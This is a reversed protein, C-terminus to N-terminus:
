YRRGLGVLASLIWAIALYVAIAVLSYIEFHAGTGRVYVDNYHFIGFFPSAFPHSVKYIFNVFGNGPNAALAALVFRFALLLSIIGAVLWVVRSIVTSVYSGTAPEVVESDTAPRAAQHYGWPHRARQALAM